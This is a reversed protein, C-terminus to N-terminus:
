PERLHRMEERRVLRVLENTDNFKFRCALDYIIKEQNVKEEDFNSYRLLFQGKKDFPNFESNKIWDYFNPYKQIAVAKVCWDYRNNHLNLGEKDALSQLLGKL